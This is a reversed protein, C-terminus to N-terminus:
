YSSFFFRLEGIYFACNFFSPNIHLIIALKRRDHITGRVIKSIASENKKSPSHITVMKEVFFSTKQVRLFRRIIILYDSHENLEPQKFSYSQM